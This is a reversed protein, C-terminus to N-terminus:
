LQITEAYFHILFHYLYYVVNNGNVADIFNDKSLNESQDALKNNQLITNTYHQLGRDNIPQSNILM